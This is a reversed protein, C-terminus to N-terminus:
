MAIGVDVQEWDEVEPQFGGGNVIPKPLPLGRLRIVVNRPDPASHIQRTVEEADFTYAFKNGDSLMAYVMLTHNGSESPCHGFVLLDGALSTGDECKRLAFPHTVREESVSGPGPQVGGSMSSLTASLGSVYKLNEADTIEVRYRCVAFEPYLTIRSRVAQEALSIDQGSDSWLTDAALAVREDETGEARPATDSRVGLGTLGTSLLDTTQSTVEFSEFREGNRYVLGETDSNLCIADYNGVPVRITGGERGIFEYRLAEGGQQPFLYLSMSAPSADPAERWDFVVDVDATRATEYTLDKHECSAAGLLLAASLIKAVRKKM